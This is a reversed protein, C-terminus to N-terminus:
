RKGRKKNKRSGASRKDGPRNPPRVNGAGTTALVENGASVEPTEPKDKDPDVKKAQGPKGPGGGAPGKGGGTGGKGPGGGSGPVVPPMRKIVWAQQGMSWINTTLWYLLVGIPFNIGFVAFSLPLVYLMFKQIQQQQKDVVTGARAMMQRQTWFTTAGMLVIMIAAVARVTTINGDLTNLLDQGSTFSAAIPAGFVKAQGGEALQTASLGFRADTGPRFENIVSFLAFFVPLQLLLPLCGSIPNANNDKYLKMLEANLTERDGKHRAQLEKIKPALEQMRRQSKIQKVFLPFLIIRVTVTLFVISLGWAWGSDDPLFTSLGNHIQELIFAVVTSLGDFIKM